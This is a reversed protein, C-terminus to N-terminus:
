DHMGEEKARQPSLAQTMAVATECCLERFELSAQVARDVQDRPVPAFGMRQFYSAATATLLYVQHVGNQRARDLLREVLQRAVGQGQYDRRVAVSRLLAYSGYVESGASAVIAGADEAVLFEGLHDSVGSTPLDFSALLGAIAPLDRDSAVRILLSM